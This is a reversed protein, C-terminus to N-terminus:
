RTPSGGPGTSLDSARRTRRGEDPEDARESGEDSPGTPRPAVVRRTRAREHPTDQGRVPTAEDQMTPIMRRSPSLLILGTAALCCATWLGHGPIGDASGWQVWFFGSDALPFALVVTAIALTGIPFRPVVRAVVLTVVIAAMVGWLTLLPTLDFSSMAEACAPNMETWSAGACPAWYASTVWVTWLSAGILITAGAFRIWGHIRQSLSMIRM